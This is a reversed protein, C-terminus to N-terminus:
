LQEELHGVPTPNCAVAVSLPLCSPCASRPQLHGQLAESLREGAAWGRAPNILENKWARFGSHCAPCNEEGWVRGVNMSFELM